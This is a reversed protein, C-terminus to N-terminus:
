CLGLWCRDWHMQVDEVVDKLQRPTLTGTRTHKHVMTPVCVETPDQLAKYRAILLGLLHSKNLKEAPEALDCEWLWEHWVTPPPNSIGEEFNSNLESISSLPM